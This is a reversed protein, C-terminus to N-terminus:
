GSGGGQRAAQIRTKRATDKRLRGAHATEAKAKLERVKARSTPLSGKARAPLDKDPAAILQRLHAEDKVPEMKSLAYRGSGRKYYMQHGSFSGAHAGGEYTAREDVAVTHFKETPHGIQYNVKRLLADDHVSLSTKGGKLLSKVEIADSHDIKVDYPKKDRQGADETQEEPLGGVAQAIRNKVGEAHVQEAKGVKQGTFKSAGAGAPVHCPEGGKPDMLPSWSWECPASACWYWGASARVNKGGCDPCAKGTPPGVAIGFHDFVAGTIDKDHWIRDWLDGDVIIWGAHQVSGIKALEAEDGGAVVNDESPDQCVVCGCPTGIVAVYHGYEFRATKFVSQFEKFRDAASLTFGPVIKDALSAAKDADKTEDLALAFAARWAEPKPVDELTALAM